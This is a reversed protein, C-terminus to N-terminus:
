GMLANVAIGNIMQNMIDKALKNRYAPDMSNFQQQDNGILTRIMEYEFNPPVIVEPNQIYNCFSKPSMQGMNLLAYSSVGTTLPSAQFVYSQPLPLLGLTRVVTDILIIMFPIENWETKTTYIVINKNALISGLLYISALNEEQMLYNVYKFNGSDIMNDLYESVVEYPPLLTCLGVGIRKLEVNATETVLILRNTPDMAMQTAYAEDCTFTLFHQM